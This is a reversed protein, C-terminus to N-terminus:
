DINAIELKPALTYIIAWAIIYASGCMLFIINYGDNINGLLKYKDLLIGVIFPFFIGGVSGAMGGIGIISSVAKKPFMDTAISYINASWAQHSAAALSILAVAQWINDCYRALMIPVVALAFGLMTFKRAKFSPWGKNILYGSLWGGGISGITTATYVIILELSPKKLDLQFRESFYSPLWFLFFWWIPDTFM